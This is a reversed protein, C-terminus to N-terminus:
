SEVLDIIFKLVNEPLAFSPFEDNKFSPTNIKALYLDLNEELKIIYEMASQFSEFKNVNIFSEPNFDQDVNQAGWYIPISNVSLPHIIKETVYGQSITNEFAINFRYKALFKIKWKQDGRGKITKGSENFLKGRSDIEKLADLQKAFNVREGSPNSAVFSCFNKNPKHIKKNNIINKKDILFSIDRQNKQPVEFWNIFLVWLPLRYNKNDINEMFSFSADCIEFDPMVNEGTFFIKKSNRYSKNLHEKQGGYDVSYFLLDPSENTIKVNYNTSLLHYFYNDTKDFNPWFSAFDVKISRKM